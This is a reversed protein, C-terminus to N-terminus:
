LNGNEEEEEEEQEYVEEDDAKHAKYALLQIRDLATEADSALHSLVRMSEISVPDHRGRFMSTAENITRWIASMDSPRKKQPSADSSSCEEIRTVDRSRLTFLIRNVKRKPPIVYDDDLDDDDDDIEDEEIFDSEQHQNFVHRFEESNIVSMAAEHISESLGDGDCM